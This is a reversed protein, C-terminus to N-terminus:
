GALRAAATSGISANRWSDPPQHEALDQHQCPVRELAVARAAGEGHEADHPADDRHCHQHRVAGSEAARQQAGEVGEALARHDGPRPLGALLRAALAGALLDAELALVEVDHAGFGRQDLVDAELRHLPPLHVVAVADDVGRDAADVGLVPRDAVLDGGLTAPDAVLVVLLSPTDREEARFRPLLQERPARSDVLRHQDRPHAERHDPRHVALQL